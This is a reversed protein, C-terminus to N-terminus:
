ALERKLENQIGAVSAVSPISLNRKAENAAHLQEYLTVPKYYAIEVDSICKATEEWQEIDYETTTGMKRITLGVDGQRNQLTISSGNVAIVEATAEVGAGLMIDVLDGAEFQGTPVSLTDIRNTSRYIEIQRRRYASINNYSDLKAIYLQKLIPPLSNYAAISIDATQERWNNNWTVIRRQATQVGGHEREIMATLEYDTLVLLDQPNIVKNSIYLIWDKSSDGLYQHAIADPRLGEEVSQKVATSFDRIKVRATIDRIPGLTPHNFTPFNKLFNSM